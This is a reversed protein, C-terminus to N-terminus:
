APICLGLFLSVSCSLSASSGNHNWVTESKKLFCVCVWVGALEKKEFKLWGKLLWSLAQALATQSSWSWWFGECRDDASGLFPTDSLELEQIHPVTSYNQIFNICRALSLCLMSYCLLKGIWSTPNLWQCIYIAVSRASTGSARGKGCILEGGITCEAGFPRLKALNQEDPDTLSGKWLHSGQPLRDGGSLPCRRQKSQM